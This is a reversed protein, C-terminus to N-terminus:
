LGCVEENAHQDHKVFEPDLVYGAAHLPSHLMNWRATFAESVQAKEDDDLELNSIHEQLEFCEHYLKGTTAQNSDAMRLVKM